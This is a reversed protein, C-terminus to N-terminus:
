LRWCTQLERWKFDGDCGENLRFTGGSSVGMVVGTLGLVGVM